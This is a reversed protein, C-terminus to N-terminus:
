KPVPRAGKKAEGRRARQHCLAAVALPQECRGLVLRLAAAKRTMAKRGDQGKTARHHQDPLSLTAGTSEPGAVTVPWGDKPVRCSSPDMYGTDDIEQPTATSAHSGARWLLM